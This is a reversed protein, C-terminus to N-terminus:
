MVVSKFYFRVTMGQVLSYYTHERELHCFRTVSYNQWGNMDSVQTVLLFFSCHAIKIRAIQWMSCSNASLVLKLNGCDHTRKLKARDHALTHSIKLLFTLIIKFKCECEYRMYNAGRTSSFKMCSRIYFNAGDPYSPREQTHAHTFNGRRTNTGCLSM